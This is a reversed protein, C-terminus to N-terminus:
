KSRKELDGPPVGRELVQPDPDPLDKVPDGAPKQEEKAPENKDPMFRVNDLKASHTLEAKGDEEASRTYAERKGYAQNGRCGGDIWFEPSGWDVTKVNQTKPRAKVGAYIWPQILPRM